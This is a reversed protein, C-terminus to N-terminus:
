MPWAWLIAPVSIFIIIISLPLGLKWYDTFQYGGPGMVLTNSQHGIPTLFACTAGIAVAMLLPDASVDLNNAINIAIPAMLVASAKNVLNALFMTTILVSAVIVYASMHESYALLINSIHDATGTTELAEAVPIIAGLLVLIPWDISQYLERLRVFKFVAFTAAALTLAIEIRLIDLTSLLIAALFILIAALLYRKKNFFIERDNLLTLNLQQFTDHINSQQIQFLLVDGPKFRIEPLRKQMRRGKRAVALLNIGYRWRLDVENVTKDALLSDSMIVAEAIRIEESDIEKEGANGKARLVLNYQQLFKALEGPGAEIILIDKAQIQVFRSPSLIRDNDRVIGAIVVTSEKQERFEELTKGTLLSGEPVEIETTYDEINFVDERTVQGERRPVLFRSFLTIFIVGGIAVPIGVWAFDLMSFPSVSGAERFGAVIINPPTGILTTLGGLLSGFALPMLLVSPPRDYKRALHIAVPMFLALAGINNMFASCIAVLSTLAATQITLNKGLQEVRNSIIDVVGVNILGRSLVLVAAITVVAPHSFGRFAEDAPVIGFVTAAILGFVAVIDYRPRGAVFFIIM